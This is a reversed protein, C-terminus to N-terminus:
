DLTKLNINKPIKKLWVLRDRLRRRRLKVVMEEILGQHLNDKLKALKEAREGMDKLSMSHQLKQWNNAESNQGRIQGIKSELVDLENSLLLHLNALSFHFGLFTWFRWLIKYWFAFRTGQSTEYRVGFNAGFGIKAPAYGVSGRRFHACKANVNAGCSESSKSCRPWNESKKSFKNSFFLIPDIAKGLFTDNLM